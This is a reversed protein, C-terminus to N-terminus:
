CAEQWQSGEKGTMMVWKRDNGARESDNRAFRLLRWERIPLTFLVFLFLVRVFCSATFYSVFNM